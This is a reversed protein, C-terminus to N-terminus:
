YYIHLYLHEYITKTTYLIIITLIPYSASVVLTNSKSVEYMWIPMGQTRDDILCWQWQVCMDYLLLLEYTCWRRSAAATEANSTCKNHTIMHMISVTINDELANENGKYILSLENDIAIAIQANDEHKTYTHPLLQSSMRLIWLTDSADMVNSVCFSLSYNVIIERRVLGMYFGCSMRWICIYIDITMSLRGISPNVSKKTYSRPHTKKRWIVVVCLFTVIRLTNTIVTIILCWGSAITRESNTFLKTTKKDSETDPRASIRRQCGRVVSYLRIAFHQTQPM